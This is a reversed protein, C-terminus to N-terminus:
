GCLRQASYNPFAISPYWM